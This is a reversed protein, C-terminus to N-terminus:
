ETRHPPSKLHGVVLFSYCKFLYTSDNHGNGSWIKKEKDKRLKELLVAKLCKFGNSSIIPLKEM